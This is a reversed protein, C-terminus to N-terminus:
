ALHIPVRAGVLSGRSAAFLLGAGPNESDAHLGSGTLVVIWEAGSLTHLVFEAVDGSLTAALAHEGNPATVAFDGSPSFRAVWDTLLPLETLADDEIASPAVLGFGHRLYTSVSADALDDHGGDSSLVRMSTEWAIAIHGSPLGMPFWRVDTGSAGEAAQRAHAALGPMERIGSRSCGLHSPVVERVSEDDPDVLLQVAVPTTSGAPIDIGCVVCTLETEAIQDCFDTLVEPPFVSRIEPAVEVRRM